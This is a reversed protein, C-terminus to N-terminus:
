YHMVMDPNIFIKGHGDLFMAAHLPVHECCTIREPCSPHEWAACPRFTVDIKSLDTNPNLDIRGYLGRPTSFIHAYLNRLAPTVTGSYSHPLIAERKYIALGGFASYVPAWSQKSIRAGRGPLPTWWCDGIIEPGVPFTQDRYAYWDYISGNHDIGNAAVCDWELDSEVTQVIQEIPWRHRFDLDAMLLLPYDAYDPQRAVQLTRNRAAAIRETRSPALQDASLNESIVQVHRNEAAWQKLLGTSGDTSNNEYIIVRYDKFRKGLEEINAITQPVAAAVDRAVGCILIKQDSAPAACLPAVAILCAIFITLRIIM